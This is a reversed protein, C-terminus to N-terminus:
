SADASPLAEGNWPAEYSPQMTDVPVYLLQCSVIIEYYASGDEGTEVGNVWYTGASVTVGNAVKGAAWYAQTEFPLSGVVADTSYPIGCTAPQEEECPPPAPRKAKEVSRGKISNASQAKGYVVCCEIVDQPASKTGASISAIKAPIYCPDYARKAAPAASASLAFVFASLGLVVLLLTRFLSSVSRRM